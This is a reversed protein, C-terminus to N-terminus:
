KSTVGPVGHRRPSLVQGPMQFLVSRRKCGSKKGFKSDSGSDAGEQGRGETDMGGEPLLERIKKPSRSRGRNETCM